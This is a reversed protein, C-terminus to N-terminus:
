RAEVATNVAQDLVKGLIETAGRRSYQMVVQPPAVHATGNRVRALFVTLLAKIEDRDDLKAISDYGLSTLLQGTDGSPETFAAIPKGAFLYEYLKAPIQQNCQAGQFLLCADAATMEKLAHEYAIPPQLTVLDEIGNERIQRAYDAEHGSARLVVSLEDATVLRDRKLEALAAFFQTPDRDRRYLLGSHLLTLRREATKSVPVCPAQAKAFVTDDFGNAIVHIRDPPYGPYRGTYLAKTGPTTVVVQAARRFMAAEMRWYNRRIWPDTPFTDQAMPDRFDAVWPVGTLRALMFGICHASAIPYTSMIVDPRWQRVLRAGIAVAGPIWTQWRDPFALFKPYRGAISLHRQADLAPARVVRVDAPILESNAREIEPYARHGATLVTVNWGFTGLYRAFALSRHVGTSGQLPPFHFAVLLLRKQTCDLRM